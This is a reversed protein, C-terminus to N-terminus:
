FHEHTTWKLFQKWIPESRRGQSSESLNQKRFNGFNGIAESRKRFHGFISSKVKVAVVKGSFWFFSLFCFCIQPSTYPLMGCLEWVKQHKQKQQNTKESKKKTKPKKQFLAQCCLSLFSCLFVAGSCVSLFSCLFVAGSLLFISLSIPCQPSPTVLYMCIYITGHRRTSLGRKNYPCLLFGWNISVAM